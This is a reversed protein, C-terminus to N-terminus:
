RERLGQRVSPRDPIEMQFGCRCRLVRTALYVSLAEPILRDSYSGNISRLESGVTNMPQGCHIYHDGFALVGSPNGPRNLIRAVEAVDADRTDPAGCGTCTFTVAVMFPSGAFPSGADLADIATIKLTDGNGCTACRLPDPPPSQSLTDDDARVSM